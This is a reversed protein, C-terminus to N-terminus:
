DFEIEELEKKYPLSAQAGIRTVTIAAAQIAYQIATEVNEGVARKAVFAGIFADGAGTTDVAKVKKAPFFTHDTKTISVVGKDGLTLIIHKCDIEKLKKIIGDRDHVDVKVLQAAETENLVLHTLHELFEKRLPYMPALNLIVEKNLARGLQICYEVVDIPIEMQLIIIKCSKFIELHENIHERTLEHNAGANLVITNNGHLDVTIMATGSPAQTTKYLGVTSIGEKHIAGIMEEGHNDNGVCGIMSVNGGLRATAVAQNAGKGGLGTRFSRGMITEGLQPLRNVQSILDMNLSGIVLVEKSMRKVENM